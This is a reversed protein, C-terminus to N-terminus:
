TLQTCSGESSPLHRSSRHAPSCCCVHSRPDPTRSTASPRAISSTHSPAGSTQPCCTVGTAVTDTAKTYVHASVLSHVNDLSVMCTRRCHHSGHMQKNMLHWMSQTIYYTSCAHDTETGYALRAVERQVPAVSQSPKFPLAQKRDANPLRPIVSM